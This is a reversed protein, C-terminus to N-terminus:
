RRRRNRVHHRCNHDFLNNAGAPLSVRLGNLEKRLLLQCGLRSTERRDFALDLMDEEDIQDGSSTAAPAATAAAEAEDGGQPQPPPPDADGRGYVWEMSNDTTQVPQRAGGGRWWLLGGAGRGRGLRRLGSRLREQM